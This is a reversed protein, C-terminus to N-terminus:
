SDTLINEAYILLFDDKGTMLLDNNEFKKAQKLKPM